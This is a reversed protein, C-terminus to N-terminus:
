QQGGPMMTEAGDASRLVKEDMLMCFIQYGAADQRSRYRFIVSGGNDEKLKDLPCNNWYLFAEVVRDFYEAKENETLERERTLM